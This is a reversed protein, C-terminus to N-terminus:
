KITLVQENTDPTDCLTKKPPVYGSRHKPKFHKQEYAIVAQMCLQRQEDSIKKGTPWKGLEIARKLSKYIDPTINDILEAINSIM